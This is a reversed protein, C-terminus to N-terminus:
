QSDFALAKEAMQLAGEKTLHGGIFGSAHVFVCGPLDLLQSLEEDRKGRWPEPLALRSSFSDPSVPVAQVRWNQSQDAFLIYKVQGELGMEREITELHEKWPCCSDLLIIQGSPSVEMRNRLSQEVLTRAPLWSELNYRLHQLFEEGAMKKALQFRRDLEASDQPRNWPPLMAGVRQSLTTGVYYNPKVEAPYQEVGNDVGDIAEIFKEYLRHYILTVTDEDIPSVNLNQMEQLIVERGFHKYILGASSLKTKHNPSFTETFGRQHHDYRHTSPDYVAGVDVLIDLSNLVETDRTRIIKSHSEHFEKTLQLLFCALAEDCHFSGSHTGITKVTGESESM